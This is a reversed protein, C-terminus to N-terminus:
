STQFHESLKTMSHEYRVHRNKLDSTRKSTAVKLLGTLPDPLRDITGLCMVSDIPFLEDGIVEAEIPITNNDPGQISRKVETWRVIVERGPLMKPQGHIDYRGASTWVVADQHRDMIELPPM